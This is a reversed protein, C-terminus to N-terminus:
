TPSELSAIMAKLFRAAEIGTVVRHDFTLSIPLTRRVEPKGNRALVQPRITGAGVPRVARSEGQAPGSPCGGGWGRVSGSWLHAGVVRPRRAVSFVRGWAGRLRQRDDIFRFFVTEGLCQALIELAAFRHFGEFFM